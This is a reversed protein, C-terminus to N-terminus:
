RGANDDRVQDPIWPFGSSLGSIILSRRLKLQPVISKLSEETVNLTLNNM